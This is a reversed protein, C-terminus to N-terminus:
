HSDQREFVALFYYLDPHLHLFVREAGLSQAAASVVGILKAALLVRDAGGFQIVPELLLMWLFNTYGEVHEGVNYYPGLGSALFRSYRFTIFADDNIYSWFLSAHIGFLAVPILVVVVLWWRRLRVGHNSKM